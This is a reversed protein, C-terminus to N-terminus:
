FTWVLLAFYDLDSRKADGPDSDYQWDYGLRLSLNTEPDVLIEYGGTSTIRYAPWLNIAQYYDATVFLKQRETITWEFDGGVLAEVRFRDDVDGGFKQSVGLGARGILLFEDDKILDYGVGGNATLLWDWAQFEDYELTGRAFYRWKSDPVLWDNRAAAIFKNETTNGEETGISYTMSARTEMEKTLRETTLAARLNFRETNGTSGNLGVEVSRSWGEWFSKELEGTLNPDGEGAQADSPTGEGAVVAEVAAGDNQAMVPASCVGLCGLGIWAAGLWVGDARNM